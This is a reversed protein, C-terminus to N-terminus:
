AAPEEGTAFAKDVYLLSSRYDMQYFYNIAQLVYESGAVNPADQQYHDFEAASEKYRDMVTLIQAARYMAQLHEVNNLGNATVAAKIADYAHQNDGVAWYYSSLVQQARAVEFHTLSGDDLLKRLDAIAEAYRDEAVLNSDRKLAATFWNRLSPYIEARGGLTTKIETKGPRSDALGSTSHLSLCFGLTTAALLTIIKM